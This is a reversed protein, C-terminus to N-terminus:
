DESVNAHDVRIVGVTAERQGRGASVGAGGGVQVEVPDEAVGEGDEDEWEYIWDRMKHLVFNTIIIDLCNDIRSCM